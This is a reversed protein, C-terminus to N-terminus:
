GQRQFNRRLGRRMAEIAHLGPYRRGHRSATESSPYLTNTWLLASVEAMSSQACHLDLDLDSPRVCNPKVPERRQRALDKVHKCLTSAPDACAVHVQTSRASRVQEPLLGLYDDVTPEVRGNTSAISSVLYLGARHHLDEKDTAATHQVGQPLALAELALDYAARAADEDTQRDVSTQLPQAEAETKAGTLRVFLHKTPDVAIASESALPGVFSISDYAPDAAVCGAASDTPCPWSWGSLIQTRMGLERLNENTAAFDFFDDARLHQVGTPHGQAEPVLAKGEKASVPTWFVVVPRQLSAGLGIARMVNHMRDPLTGHSIEAFVIRARTDYVHSLLWTRDVPPIRHVVAYPIDFEDHLAETTAAREISDFTDDSVLSLASPAWRLPVAFVPGSLRGLPGHAGRMSFKSGSAKRVVPSWCPLNSLALKTERLTKKHLAQARPGEDEPDGDGALVSSKLMAETLDRRFMSHDRLLREYLDMAESGHFPIREDYGGARALMERRIVLVGSGLINDPATWRSAYFMNPSDDPIQHAAVFDPDLVTSCDVKVLIDGFSLDAALNYATSPTWPASTDPMRVYTESSPHVPSLEEFLSKMARPDDSGFDVFVLQDVGRAAKWSLLSRQLSTSRRNCAVLVSVLKRGTKPRATASEMYELYKTERIFDLSLTPLDEVMQRVSNPKAASRYLEHTVEPSVVVMPHMGASHNGSLSEPMAGLLLVMTSCIMLSALCTFPLLRLLDARRQRYILRALKEAGHPSSYPCIRLIIDICRSTHM